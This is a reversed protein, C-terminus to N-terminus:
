ADTRGGEEDTDDEETAGEEDDPSPQDSESEEQVDSEEPPTEDPQPTAPPPPPAEAMPQVVVDGAGSAATQALRKPRVWVVYALLWFVVVVFIALYLVGDIVQMSFTPLFVGILVLGILLLALASFQAAVPRSALALGLLALAAVVLANLWTENLATLHMAGDAGAVPRLTSFVFLNGLSEERRTPDGTINSIGKTLERILWDDPRQGSTQNAFRVTPRCTFPGTRRWIQEDTWPGRCGLLAREEPLYVCLYVKQVAPEDPFEPLELHSQDGPITYRLELLFPEKASQGVLPISLGGQADGSELPVVSGNIRLPRADFQVRDSMPLRMALRQRASRIRYLAHVAIEDGRTVNMRVVAMEIRTQKVEELKYRRATITLSWDEQFEYARAADPVKAEEMLDTQPDIGLLGEPTGQPAIDITEAKTIVIQGSARDVSMPKLQPIALDISKGVDLQEDLKEEWAFDIQRRGLMEADGTLRWAVYGEAPPAQPPDEAAPDFKERRISETQKRISDALDEPVDIRLSKVGSYQVDYYFKAEYKVVGAEIRAILLQRATVHPKRRQASVALSVPERTYAFALAPRTEPFRGDRVSAMKEYAKTFSTDRAGEHEKANVRLSAPAFLVVRGNSREVSAPAVRPLPLPIDSTEGTPRLLNPDDLRRTLEVFLGTRDTEKRSFAKRSLNVLMRTKEDGLLQHSEVSAATAGAVARGEVRRVEFGAPVELEFQFVGAREVRYLALLNLTLHTPELYAEVLEDVSVQPLVKEVSVALDFPLTAYRYSFDWKRNRLRDPLDAADLQLLGTRKTAEGRLGDDLSVVVVGQQRGVNLAKVVPVTLDEKAVDDTFRELEITVNQTGRTPEYLDITVTQVEGEKKFDWQRVNPDFVNVVKQDAPVEVSLQSLEARSIEYHLRATTRTVGEDITVEQQVEVTALAELGAAGEAKPTWNIRVSPAAGVFAMLVTEDDAAEGEPVETAAIVPFVDVKVGPEPIRIKWRNVPAQPSQFSVSNQGPAKTFSRAYTLALETQAPDKGKHQILLKYGGKGDPVVRAPEEGHAASLIAADALRLPVEHWGETLLEIKIKATIRVVDKEVTAENEVETILAGVPPKAKDDPTKKERAERWLEHFKEYPLFVGRGEKEFVERLKTYPIYITQERVTKEEAPKGDGAGAGPPDQAAVISSTFLIFLLCVAPPVFLRNM